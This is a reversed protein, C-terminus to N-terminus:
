KLKLLQGWFDRQQKQNINVQQMLTFARESALRGEEDAEEQIIREAQDKNLPKIEVNRSQKLEDM